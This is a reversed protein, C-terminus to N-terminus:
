GGVRVKIYMPVNEYGQSSSLFSLSVTLYLSLISQNAGEGGWLMFTCPEFRLELRETHMNERHLRSNEGPAGTEEWQGFVHKQSSHILRFQGYTYITREKNARHYAPLRDQTYGM